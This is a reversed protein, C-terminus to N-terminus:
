LGIVRDCCNIAAPRHSIIIITVKGNLERLLQCFSNENAADLASTAEDFILLKADQYLARAIGIRQRQGGSLNGQATILHDPSFDPLGALLLSQIVKADDIEGPSQGFAVNERVTAELLFVNQPVIGLQKRWASLDSFIDVGGATIKGSSPRLLGTLLDALTSKGRGSPGTIAVSSGPAITLSFNELVPPHDQYGFTIRDLCLEQGADAATGSPPPEPHRDHLVDCILQLQPLTQRILTLNYHCRSLAPLIRSVAATLIAFTLLIQTKDVGSILMICFAAGALLIYASELVLRPLQGFTYLKCAYNNVSNYAKAFRDLFFAEKAMSKITKEGMIGAQRIRNETLSEQLMKRGYLSNIKRGLLGTVAAILLMSIIGSITILPFLVIAMLSIIGIVLFDALVQMSPLLIQNGVDTLRNFINFCYDPSLRSFYEYDSYLFGSYLRRALESRKAFMFKSQVNIIWLAFVNKGALLIGIASVAVAVRWKEPLGPLVAAIISSFHQGAESAPSLFLTAAGLLVGIGALEMLASVAMLLAIFIFKRKDHPAFLWRLHSIFSRM